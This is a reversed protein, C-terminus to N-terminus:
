YASTAKKAANSLAQYMKLLLADQGEIGYAKAVEVPNTFSLWVSGDKDQWAMARLPLDIAMANNAQMLSTGVNPNGFILVETPPLSQKAMAAEQSHNIRAFIKGGNQKIINELRNLTDAVSFASQRTANWIAGAPPGLRADYAGAIKRGLEDLNPIQDRNALLTVCLLESPATFRSLFSSFGPVNGEIYMFGPRGPFRWGANAPIAKNNINISNYLYNRNKEDKILIDGALGIDWISVDQASAYVAANAYLASESSAKVPALNGDAFTYGIAPETPNILKPLHKFESHKFPNSNNGLENSANELTSVFFTHKLGLREFQNKTIYNEYSMGSAKEIIMGLLYYDTASANVDSGPKFRLPIDKVLNIIQSPAYQMSYSFEGNETFDPLGSTHTLLQNVTIISWTKPLDPIYKSIGEDLKLKNEELLQMIAVATYANTIQGVNFVTNTAVLRKTDMDALGYGVVRSIYPAQVIAVAMGPIHNEVMFNIVLDDVSQGQYFQPVEGRGAHVMGGPGLATILGIAKFLDMMTKKM